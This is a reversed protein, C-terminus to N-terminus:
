LSLTAAVLMAAAERTTPDHGRTWLRGEDDDRFGMCGSDARTPPAARAAVGGSEYVHTVEAPVLGYGHPGRVFVLIKDGVNM